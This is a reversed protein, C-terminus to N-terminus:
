TADGGEEKEGGRKLFPPLEGEEIQWETVRRNWERMRGPTFWERSLQAARRKPMFRLTEFLDAAAQPEELWHGGIWQRLPGAPVRARSAVVYPEDDAADAPVLLDVPSVNLAMALVLLEDVTVMRRRKGTAKDRRGNEINFITQASLDAGLAACREAVEDTTMDRARRIQRIRGAVVDSVTRDEASTVDAVRSFSPHNASAALRIRRYVYSKGIDM